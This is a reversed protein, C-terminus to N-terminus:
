RTVAGGSTRATAAWEGARPSVQNIPPPAGGQPTQHQLLGLGQEQEGEEHRGLSLRLSTTSNCSRCTCHWGQM